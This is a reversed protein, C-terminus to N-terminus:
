IIKGILEVILKIFGTVINVFFQCIIFGFKGFINGEVILIDEEINSEDVIVNGNEINEEFIEMDLDISSTSTPNGSQFISSFLVFLCLVILVSKFLSKM